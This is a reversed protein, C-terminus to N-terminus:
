YRNLDPYREIPFSNSENQSQYYVVFNTYADTLIQIAQNKTTDNQNWMPSKYIERVQEYLQLPIQTEKLLPTAKEANRIITYIKQVEDEFQEYENALSYNRKLNSEEENKARKLLEKALKIQDVYKDKRYTYISINAWCGKLRKSAIEIQYDTTEVDKGYKSESGPEWNAGNNKIWLM